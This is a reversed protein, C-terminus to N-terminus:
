CTIVVNMMNVIVHGFTVLLTRILFIFPTTVRVVLPQLKQNDALTNAQGYAAATQFLQISNYKRGIFHFPNLTTM